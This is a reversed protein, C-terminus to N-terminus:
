YRSNKDRTKDIDSPLKYHFYSALIIGCIHEKCLGCGHVIREKFEYLVSQKHCRPTTNGDLASYGL